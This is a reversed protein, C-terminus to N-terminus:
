LIIGGNEIKIKKHLEVPYLNEGECFNTITIDMYIADCHQEWTGEFFISLTGDDISNMSVDSSAGGESIHFVENKQPERNLKYELIFGYHKGDNAYYVTVNEEIKKIELSYAEGVKEPLMDEYMKKKDEKTLTAFSVRDLLNCEQPQSDSPTIIAVIILVITSLLLYLKMLKDPEMAKVRKGELVQNIKKEYYRRYVKYLLIGVIVCILLAILVIQIRNEM